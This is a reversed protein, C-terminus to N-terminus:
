RKEGDGKKKREKQEVFSPFLGSLGCALLLMMMEAEKKVTSFNCTNSVVAVAQSDFM